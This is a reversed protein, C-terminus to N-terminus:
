IRRETSAPTFFFGKGQQVPRLLTVQGSRDSATLRRIVSLATHDAGAWIGAQFLVASKGSTGTGRVPVRQSGDPLLFGLPRVM